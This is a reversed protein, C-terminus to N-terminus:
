STENKNNELLNVIKELIAVNSATLAEASIKKLLDRKKAAYVIDDTAPVIYPMFLRNGRSDQTYGFRDFIYDDTAVYRLGIINLVHKISSLKATTFDSFIFVEDGVQLSAVWAEREDGTLNM